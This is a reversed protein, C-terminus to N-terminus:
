SVTTTGLIVLYVARGIFEEPCDAKPSSGFKTVRKVFFGHLGEIELRNTANMPIKKM